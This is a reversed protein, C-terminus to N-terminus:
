GEKCRHEGRCFCFQVNDSNLISGHQFCDMDAVCDICQVMSAIHVVFCVCRGQVAAALPLNRFQAKVVNDGALLKYAEKLETENVCSKAVMFKKIDSVAVLVSPAITGSLKGLADLMAVCDDYGAMEEEWAFPGKVCTTMVQACSVVNFVFSFM